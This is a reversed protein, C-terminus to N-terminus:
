VMSAALFAALGSEQFVKDPLGKSEFGFCIFGALGKIGNSWPFPTGPLLCKEPRGGPWLDAV